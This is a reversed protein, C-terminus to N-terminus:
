RQEHRALRPWPPLPGPRTGGRAALEGLVRQAYDATFAANGQLIREGEHPLLLRSLVATTRRRGTSPRWTAFTLDEQRLGKDLHRRLDADTAATMAVSFETPGAEDM